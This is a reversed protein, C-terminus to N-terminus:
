GGHAIIHLFAATAHGANRYASAWPGTMPAASLSAFPFPHRRNLLTRRAFFDNQFSLNNREAIRVAGQACHFRM